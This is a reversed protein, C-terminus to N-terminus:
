NGINSIDHGNVEKLGSNKCLKFLNLLQNNNAVAFNGSLLEKRLSSGIVDPHNILKTGVKIDDLWIANGLHLCVQM